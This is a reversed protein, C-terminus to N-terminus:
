KVKGVFAVTRQRQEFDAKASEAARKSPFEGVRVRYTVGKPTNVTVLYPRYGSATLKRVLAEADGQAQVPALQLVYREAREAREPREDDDEGAAPRAPRRDRGLAAPAPAARGQAAPVAEVARSPPQPARAVDRSRRDARPREALPDPAAVGRADSLTKHFTLGDEAPGGGLRDLAALPDSSTAAARGGSALRTGGRGGV